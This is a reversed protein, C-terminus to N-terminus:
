QYTPCIGCYECMCIGKNKSREYGGVPGRYFWYTSCLLFNIECILRDWLLWIISRDWLLKVIASRVLKVVMSLCDCGVIMIIYLRSSATRLLPPVGIRRAKTSVSLLSSQDAADASSSQSISEDYNQHEWNRILLLFPLLLLLLLLLPNILLLLM